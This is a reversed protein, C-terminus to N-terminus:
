TPQFPTNLTAITKSRIAANSANQIDQDIDSITDVLKVVDNLADLSQKQSKAAAAILDM